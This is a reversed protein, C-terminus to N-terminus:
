TSKGSGNPGILAVVDGSHAEFSISALEFHPYRFSVGEVRLHHRIGQAPSLETIDAQLAREDM